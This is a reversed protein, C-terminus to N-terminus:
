SLWLLGGNMGASRERLDYMREAGVSAEPFLAMGM